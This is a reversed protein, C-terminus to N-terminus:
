VPLTWSHLVPSATTPGDYLVYTVSFAPSCAPAGTGLYSLTLYGQNPIHNFTYSQISQVLQTQSNSASTGPLVVLRTLTLVSTFTHAAYIDFNTVSEDHHWSLTDGPAWCWQGSPGTPPSDDCDLDYGYDNNKLFCTGYSGYTPGGDAASPPALAILLCAVVIGM